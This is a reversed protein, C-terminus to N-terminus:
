RLHGELNADLKKKIIKCKSVKAEVVAQLARDGLFVKICSISREINPILRKEFLNVRISITRFEKELIEKKKISMLVKQYTKKLTRFIAIADETWIPQHILKNGPEKFSINKIWPISIGAINDYQIDINDIELSEILDSFKKDTLLKAHKVVATKEIDYKLKCEAIEENAKNVEIQLLTKKLKLTPLYKTFLSLRDKLSVLEVKTLKVNVM